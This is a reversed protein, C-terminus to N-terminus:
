YGFQTRYEQVKQNLLPTLRALMAELLEDGRAVLDLAPEIMGQVEASHPYFPPPAAFEVDKLPVDKSHPPTSHLYSPHGVMSKIMPQYNGDQMM